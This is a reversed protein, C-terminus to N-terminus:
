EKNIDENKEEDISSDEKQNSEETSEIDNNIISSEDAVTDEVIIKKKRKKNVVLITGIAAVALLVGAIICYLITNNTKEKPDVKINPTTTPTIIPEISPSSEISPSTAPSDQPEDSEDAYTIICGIKGKYTVLNVYFSKKDQDSYHHNRDYIIVTGSKPIKEIRTYKSAFDAIPMDSKYDVNYMSVDYFDTEEDLDKKDEKYDYGLHSVDKQSIFGKVGNYEVYYYDDKCNFIINVVTAAPIEGRTEGSGSKISVKKLTIISAKEVSYGFSLDEGYGLQDNYKVFFDGYFDGYFGKIITEAPVTAYIANNEDYLKVDKFSIIEEDSYFLIDENALWGKYGNDDIYVYPIHTSEGPGYSSVYNKVTFVTRYPLKKEYTGYLDAPGKKLKAGKKNNIIIEITGSAVFVDDEKSTKIDSPSVESKYPAVDSKLLSASECGYPKKGDVCAEVWEEGEDYVYIKTNYKVITGNEDDQSKAGNKNIVVAEYWLLSPGGADAFVVTPIMLLLFLFLIKKM